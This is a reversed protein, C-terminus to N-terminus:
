LKIRAGLTYMKTSPYGSQDIGLTISNSSGRTNVEPDYGSYNTLTFLNQGSVYLQLNKMWSVGFLTSPVTYALQINKLRLFSADEVFRDSPLFANKSSVKPYKANPNQNENTWRNDYLDKLQNEGWWFSNAQATLNMNFVELGEVGQLQFNFEFNKYSISSGVNYYFKPNPNGIITRDSNSIKGDDNLDKYQILGNETLGDELYGYFVGVPEGERVLNVSAELPQPLQGGFVDKGESLEEVQNRNAALNANVNWKFAKNVVLSNLGIEIGTNSIKGINSITSAYGTSSPLPVNALLDHTNKRYLDFTLNLRNKLFAIDVGADIQRTTEWKLNPNAFNSYSPAYGIYLQDDLIIQNPSLSNITQYPDVATSGTIGWSFRFKLDSLFSIHNIFDENIAKWAFAVSPFYGWKNGEAFRSSGDARISATVLYTEKFAYNLRGLYSFLNWKSSQNAPTGPVSASQINGAGLKDTSFGTANGTDYAKIQNQQYTIGGLATFSHDSNLVKTYTVTNENLVNLNDSSSIKAQGTPTSFIISPSYISQKSIGAEIGFSSNFSLGEIPEYKVSTGALIYKTNQRQTREIALALPNILNNPSFSYAQVNNYSGNEDKPSITPPAGLLGNIISGGKSGNDSNIDSLDTNSLTSSFTIKVKDSIKQNFNGRLSERKLNSGLVIGVQDTFSGSISFQTKENGGSATIAHNQLPATRYLVDQWDTGKGFSNIQSETFFPTVGDNLARENALIAFETANMLDIKKRLKQISYYSDFTIESKGAQGNKTTILVVGNAGRSGYIASASADKLIEISEIDQPNLSEPSGTIAFGDVVYLPENNGLLSNGGRIRVSINGGPKGSNQIVQVGATKGQLGAVADFVPYSNLEKTSISSISGTLDGKRQTGYGVVVIEDLYKLDPSLQIEVPSSKIVASTKKYGVYSIILTAPLKQGTVFNFKGAGDTAVSHTVGELQVLAGQLPERTLSDIVTGSITANILPSTQAFSSLFSALIIFLLLTDKGFSSISLIRNFLANNQM